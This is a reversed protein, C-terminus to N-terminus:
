PLEDRLTAIEGAFEKDRRLLVEVLKDYNSSAEKQWAELEPFRAIVSPPLPPILAEPYDNAGAMRARGSGSKRQLGMPM